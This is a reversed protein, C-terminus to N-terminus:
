DACIFQGRRPRGLDVPVRTGLNSTLRYGSFRVPLPVRVREGTSPDAVETEFAVHLHPGDTMGSNGVEGLLQNAQLHEGPRVRISGKKLHVLRSHEGAGHDILVFNAEDRAGPDGPARDEGGDKVELVTGAAPAVVPQGFSRNEALTPGAGPEGEGDVRILDWAFHGRSYWRRHEIGFDHGSAVFWCGRIPLRFRNQQAYRTLPVEGRGIERASDFLVVRLRDIGLRAPLQQYLHSLLLDAGGPEVRYASLATRDLEVAHRLAGAALHEIRLRELRGTDGRVRLGFDWNETELDSELKFVTGGPPEFRVELATRPGDLQQLPPGEATRCAPAVLAVWGILLAERM